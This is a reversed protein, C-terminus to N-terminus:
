LIACLFTGEVLDEGHDDSPTATHLTPAFRRQAPYQNSSQKLPATEEEALAELPGCCWLVDKLVM